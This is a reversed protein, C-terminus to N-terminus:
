RTGKWPQPLRPLLGNIGTNFAFQLAPLHADWDRHRKGVFQAIMTKITRNAREVPNCHPAYVPSTRHQIGFSTLLKRFRQSTFQTGNDSILQHPCEHRYIIRDTVATALKDATARPTGNQDV